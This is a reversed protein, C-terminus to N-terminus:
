IPIRAASSLSKAWEAGQDRLSRGFSLRNRLVELCLHFATDHEDSDPSEDRAHSHEPGSWLRSAVRPPILLNGVGDVLHESGRLMRAQGPSRDRIDRRCQLRQVVSFRIPEHPEVARRRSWHHLGRERCQPRGAIMTEIGSVVVRGREALLPRHECSAASRSAFARVEIKADANGASADHLGDVATAHIGGRHVPAVGEVRALEINGVREPLDAESAREARREIGQLRVEGVVQACSFGQAGVSRQRLGALRSDNGVQRLPSGLDRRTLGPHAHRLQCRTEPDETVQWGARELAPRSVCCRHYVGDFAKLSTM